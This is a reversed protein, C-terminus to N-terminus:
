YLYHLTLPIIEPGPKSLYLSKGEGMLGYKVRGLERAVGGRKAEKRRQTGEKAKMDSHSDRYRIKSLKM